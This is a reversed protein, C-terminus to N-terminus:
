HVQVSCSLDLQPGFFVALHWWQAICSKSLPLSAPVLADQHRAVKNAGPGLALTLVHGSFGIHPCSKDAGGAAQVPPTAVEREGRGVSTSTCISAVRDVVYREVSRRM